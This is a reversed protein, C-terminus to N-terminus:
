ILRGSFHRPHRAQHGVAIVLLGLTDIRYLLFYPFQKLNARRIRQRVERCARPHQRIEEMRQELRSLFSSELSSSIARYQDLIVGLEQEARESLRLNM